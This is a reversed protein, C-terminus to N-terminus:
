RRVLNTISRLFLLSLSLPLSANLKTRVYMMCHPRFIAHEIKPFRPAPSSPNQMFPFLSAFRKEWSSFWFPNLSCPACVFLCVPVFVFALTWWVYNSTRITLDHGDATAIIIILIESLSFPQSSYFIFATNASRPRLRGGGHVRGAWPKKRAWSGYIPQILFVCHARLM